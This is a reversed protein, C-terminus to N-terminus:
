RRPAPASAAPPWYRRRPAPSGRRRNVGPPLRVVLEALALNIAWGAATVADTVATSTGFVAQGLGITVVQTGAGLGLAYARIMWARHTPVNRARIARLGLVLCLVMGVGFLLRSWFLLPGTGAERPYVVTMWLASGAVALGMPVLVRGAARHWRPRRQRLGASFQFAGVLSYAVASIIHVVLAVPMSPHHADVPMVTSGTSVDTLRLSGAVVPVLSLAVLALPVRWTPTRPRTGPGVSPVRTTSM